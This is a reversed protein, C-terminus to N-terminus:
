GRWSPRRRRCADALDTKTVVLVDAMAAQKVSEPAASGTSRTSRRSRRRRARVHHRLLPETLSRGSSRRRTRSGPRRSSSGRFPPVEGADRRDLLARLEDALDGRLTCCLCGSALLVTREDIQSVIHHDIGIEGLENVIVATEGLAPQELLAAILTTKGSGLYGTVLSVPTKVVRAGGRAGRRAPRASPRRPAGGGGLAGGLDDAVETRGKGDSVVYQGAWERVGLGFRALVRELLATRIVRDRRGAGEDAWHENRLVGCLACM